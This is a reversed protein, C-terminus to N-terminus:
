DIYKRIFNSLVKDADSLAKELHDEEPYISSMMKDIKKELEKVEDKTAVNTNIKVKVPQNADKDIDIKFNKVNKSVDNLDILDKVSTELMETLEDLSEVAEKKFDDAIGPAVVRLYDLLADAVKAMATRAAAHNRHKTEERTKREAEEKEYATKADNLEKVMAKAIEDSTEGKRLRAIIDDKTYM